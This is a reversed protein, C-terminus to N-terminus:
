GGNKKELKEEGFFSGTSEAFFKAEREERDEGGWASKWREQM